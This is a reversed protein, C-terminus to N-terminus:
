INKNMDVKAKDCIRINRNKSCNEKYWLPQINSWHCCKVIEENKTLDWKYYPIIHDINWGYKGYNNWNMGQEFQKELHVKFEGYTCGILSNYIQSKKDDNGLLSHGSSKSNPRLHIPMVNIYKSM